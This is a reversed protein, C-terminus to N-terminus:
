LFEDDAFFSRWSMIMLEALAAVVENLLQIRGEWASNNEEGIRIEGLRWEAPIGSGGFVAPLPHFYLPLFLFRMNKSFFVLGILMVGMKYKSYLFTQIVIRIM